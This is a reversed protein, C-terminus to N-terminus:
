LTEILQRQKAFFEIRSKQDVESIQVSTRKKLQMWAKFNEIMSSNFSFIELKEFVHVFCVNTEPSLTYSYNTDINIQSIFINVKSGTEPYYGKNAVELLYDLFNFLDKKLLEKEEDTILYISHFYKIDDILYEFIMPDWIFNNNPVWKIAKYYDKTLQLKEDSIQIQSFPLVEKESSYQYMWKFLYFQNIYPFGAILQRPFKNCIDMFEVASNNKMLEISQIIIKLFNIEEESPDLYNMMRMQFAFQEINICTIEDLSINWAIAIKIIEHASFLVDKRLRRYIAERELSLLDMLVQTLQTKKPFKKSLTDVFDNYWTNSAM